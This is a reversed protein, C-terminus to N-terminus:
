SGTSRCDSSKNKKSNEEFNAPTGGEETELSTSPLLEKLKAWVEGDLGPNEQVNGDALRWLFQALESLRDPHYLERGQELNGSGQQPPEEAFLRRLGDVVEASPPLPTEDAYIYMRSSNSRHSRVSSRDDFAEDGAEDSPQSAVDSSRRTGHIERHKARRQRVREAYFLKEPEDMPPLRFDEIGRGVRPVYSGCMEIEQDFVQKRVVKSKAYIDARFDPPMDAHDGYGGFLLSEDGAPVVIIGYKLDPLASGGLSIVYSAQSMYVGLDHFGNVVTHPPLDSLFEAYDPESNASPETDEWALQSRTNGPESLFDQSNSLPKNKHPHIDLNRKTAERLEKQLDEYERERKWNGTYVTTAPTPAKELVEPLEKMIEEMKREREEKRKVESESDPVPVDRARRRSSTTGPWAAIDEGNARRRAEERAFVSDRISCPRESLDESPIGNRRMEELTHKRLVDETLRIVPAEDLSRALNEDPNM